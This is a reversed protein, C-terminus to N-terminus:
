VPTGGSPPHPPMPPVPPTGQEYAGPADSVPPADQPSGPEPAGYPSRAVDAASLAQAEGPTPPPAMGPGVQQHILDNVVRLAYKASEAKQYDELADGDILELQSRILSLQDHRIGSTAAQTDEPHQALHLAWAAVGGHQLHFQYFEIKQAMLEHESRLQVAQLEHEQRLQQMRYEHEPALMENEYRLDRKRRRHAIAEDDLRMRVTCTVQIGIGAAFDVTQLEKQVAAEAGASDEIPYRRGVPRALQQLERTLRTPVDREGSTVFRVPDAVRWTLDASVGFSFADDDSPLQVELQVSHSGMDVEYVSTYRRNAAESRTPRHPPLFADYGGKATTFVLAHDIATMPRRATYDFRSMPRYTLVPDILHSHRDANQQWEPQRRFDAM